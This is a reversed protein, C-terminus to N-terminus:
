KRFLDAFPKGPKKLQLPPSAARCASLTSESQHDDGVQQRERFLAGQFESM